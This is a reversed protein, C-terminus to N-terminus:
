QNELNNEYFNCYGVVYHENGFDAVVYYTEEWAEVLRESDDLPYDDITFNCFLNDHNKNYIKEIEDLGNVECLTLLSDALNSGRRERFLKKKNEM